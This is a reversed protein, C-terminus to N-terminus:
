ENEPETESSEPTDESLLNVKKKANPCVEDRARHGSGRCSWCRSEQLLQSRMEDTLKPPRSEPRYWKGSWGEPKSATPAFRNNSPPQSTTERGEPKATTTPKGSPRPTPEKPHQDRPLRPYKDSIGKKHEEIIRAQDLIERVNEFCQGLLSSSLSPSMSELFQDKKDTESTGATQWLSRIRQYYESIGEDRNQRINLLERKAKRKQGSLGIFHEIEQMLENFTVRRNHAVWDQMAIFIQGEMQTLAYRVKTRDTPYLPADTEIKEDVAYRWAPYEEANGSFNQKPDSGRPRWRAAQDDATPTAGLPLSAPPRPIETAPETKLRTNERGLAAVRDKLTAIEDNANDLNVQADALEEELSVAQARAEDREQRYRHATKRLEM